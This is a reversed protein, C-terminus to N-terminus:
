DLNLHDTDRVLLYRKHITDPFPAMTKLRRTGMFKGKAKQTVCLEIM